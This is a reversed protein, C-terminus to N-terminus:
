VQGAAVLIEARVEAASGDVRDNGLAVRLLARVDALEQLVQRERQGHLVLEHALDGVLALLRGVGGGLVQLRVRGDDFGPELAHRRDVALVPQRRHLLLEAELRRATSPLAAISQSLWLLIGSPIQILFRTSRRLWCAWPKKLRTESTSPVATLLTVAASSHSGGSTTMARTAARASRTWREQRSASSTTIPRSSIM